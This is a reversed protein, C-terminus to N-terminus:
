RTRSRASRRPPLKESLLVWLPVMAESVRGFRQGVGTDHFGADEDDVVFLGVAVAEDTGKLGASM